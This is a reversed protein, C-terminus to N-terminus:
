LFSFIGKQIILLGFIISIVIPITIIISLLLIIGCSFDIWSAFDKPLGLFSKALLIIGFILFAYYPLNVEAGFILILGALIDIVGLSKVLMNKLGFKGKFFM